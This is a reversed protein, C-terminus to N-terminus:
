IGEPGLPEYPADKPVRYFTNKDNQSMLWAINQDILEISISDANIIHIIIKKMEKPKDSYVGTLEVRDNNYKVASIYFSGGLCSLHPKNANLDIIISGTSYVSEGWSFIGKNFHRYPYNEWIGSIDMPNTSDAHM